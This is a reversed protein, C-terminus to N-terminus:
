QPPQEGMGPEPQPFYHMVMGFKYDNNFYDIMGSFGFGKFDNVYCSIKGATDILGQVRSTRFTYEYAIRMASENDPYSYDFETGLSVRDSVKKVYQMRLGHLQRQAMQQKFDPTRGLSIHAHDEGNSYRVGMTGMSQGGGINLYTLECGAHFNKSLRRSFGLNGIWIGQWCLKMSTACEKFNLDKTIELMNRQPEVLCSFANVRLDCYNGLAKKVLRANLVGDMGYKGMVFTREDESQFISSLSYSYPTQKGGCGLILSQQMSLFKTSPKGTELRLGDFTDQQHIQTWEKTFNEYQLCKEEPIEPVSSAASPTDCRATKRNIWSKLSGLM